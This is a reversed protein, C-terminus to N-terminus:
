DWGFRPEPTTKFDQSLETHPALQFDFKFQRWVQCSPKIDLHIRVISPLIKIPFLSKWEFKNRVCLQWIVASTQSHLAFIMYIEMITSKTVNQLKLGIRFSLHHIVALDLAWKWETTTYNDVWPCSHVRYLEFANTCTM